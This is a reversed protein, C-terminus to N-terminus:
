RRLLEAGDFARSSAFVAEVRRTASGSGPRDICRPSSRWRCPSCPGVIALPLIVAFFIAVAAVGLAFIEALKVVVLIALLPLLLIKLALTIVFLATKLVAGVLLVVGALVAGAVVLGALALLLEITLGAEGPIRLAV